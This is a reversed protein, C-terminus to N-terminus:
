IDPDNIAENKLSILEEDHIIFPDENNQDFMMDAVPQLPHFIGASSYLASRLSEIVMATNKTVKEEGMDFGNDRTYIFAESLVEDIIYEIHDKRTDLATQYVQDMSNPPSDKKQKPFLVVNDSM